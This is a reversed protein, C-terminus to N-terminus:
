LMMGNYVSGVYVRQRSPKMTSHQMDYKTGQAVNIEKFDGSLQAYNNEYVVQIDPSITKFPLADVKKADIVARVDAWYDEESYFKIRTYRNIRGYKTPQLSATMYGRNVLTALIDYMRRYTIGECVEHLERGWKPTDCAFLMIQMYDYAEKRYDHKTRKDMM